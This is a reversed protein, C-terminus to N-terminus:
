EFLRWTIPPTVLASRVPRGAKDRAPTFRARERIAQCGMGDLAPIGSPKSVHCGAVKGQEDILLLFQAQGEQNRYLAESPYDGVNFVGRLDGKSLVAISGTEKWDMNWYHKLDATCEQLGSLLAPMNELSFTVNPGDDPGSVRMGYLQPRKLRRGVRLSVFKSTSIKAMDSASIRFTFLEVNEGRVGYHLLWAKIPPGRDFAVGGELEEAFAPGRRKRAYILEYTEGNPAPLIGFTLPDDAKGYDRQALCQTEGYDVNWPKLPALPESGAFSPILLSLGLTTFAIAAVRYTPV